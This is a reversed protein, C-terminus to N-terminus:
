AAELPASASHPPTAFPRPGGGAAPNLLPGVGLLGYAAGGAKVGRWGGIRLVPLVCALLICAVRQRAGRTEAAGTRADRRVATTTRAAASGVRATLEARISRPRAAQPLCLAGSRLDGGM